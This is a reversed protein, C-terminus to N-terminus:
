RGQQGHAADSEKGGPLRVNKQRGKMVYEVIGAHELIAAVYGGSALRWGASERVVEDVSGPLPDRSHTAAVRLAGGSTRLRDLVADFVEASLRIRFGTEGVEVDLCSTEVSAVRFKAQRTAPIGRGASLLESGVRVSARVQEWAEGDM